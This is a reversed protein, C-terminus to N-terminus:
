IPEQSSTLLMISSLQFPAFLLSCVLEVMLQNGSELPLVGLQTDEDLTFGLVIYPHMPSEPPWLLEVAAKLPIFFPFSVSVLNAIYNEYVAVAVDM